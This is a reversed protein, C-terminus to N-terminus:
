ETVKKRINAVTQELHADGRLNSIDGELPSRAEEMIVIPTIDIIIGDMALASEISRHIM